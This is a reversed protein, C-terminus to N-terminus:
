STQGMAVEALADRLVRQQAESLSAIELRLLDHDHIAALAQM